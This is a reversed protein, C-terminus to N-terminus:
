RTLAFLRERVTFGLAEYLRAAPGGAVAAIVLSRAGLSKQALVGVRYVLGSCLGRRRYEPLTGVLQYRGLGEFVFMGAATVLEGDLFGGYWGGHGGESLARYVGLMEGHARARAQDDLKRRGGAFARLQCALLSRWDADGQLARVVLDSASRAPPHLRSTVLGVDEDVTFGAPTHTRAAGPDGEPTSTDWSLAIGRSPGDAFEADLRAVWGTEAAPDLDAPTPPAAFVLQNWWTYGPAGPCRLRVYGDRPTVDGTARSFGLDTTHVFSCLL